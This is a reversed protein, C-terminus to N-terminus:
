IMGIDRSFVGKWVKECGEGGQDGSPIGVLFRGPQGDRIGMYISRDMFVWLFFDVVNIDPLRIYVTNMYFYIIVMCKYIYIYVYTVYIDICEHLMETFIVYTRFSGIEDITDDDNGDWGETTKKM